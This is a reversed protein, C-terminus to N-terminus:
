VPHPVARAPPHRLARELVAAIDARGIPKTLHDFAGLKMAEITNDSTAFATLMIVPPAAAGGAGIEGLVALGDRGPLRYDLFVLDAEGEEILARGRQADAAQLVQHGLDELTEALGERFAADDDIILIRALATGT